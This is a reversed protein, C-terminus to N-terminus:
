KMYPFSGAMGHLVIKMMKLDITVYLKSFRLYIMKREKYIMWNKDIEAIQNLRVKKVAELAAEKQTMRRPM